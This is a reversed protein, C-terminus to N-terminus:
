EQRLADELTSQLQMISPNRALIKGEPGIVFSFPFSLRKYGPTESIQTVDYDKLQIDAADSRAFCSVCQLDNDNVFRRAAEVDDGLAIAIMVMRQGKSFASFAEYTELLEETGSPYKTSWLNLLVLQGRYDALNIKEGDFTEAQFQPARDGVRLRKKIDIQLVGVDLPAHANAENVDPVHLQHDLYAILEGMRGPKDSPREYVIVRLNYTGPLGDEVRFTGDHEIHVGYTRRNEWLSTKFEKGEASQEWNKRWSRRQDETMENFDEPTSAEPQKLSLTHRGYASNISQKYDPPVALRGVVPRGNGGISINATKGARVNVVESNGQGSSTQGFKIVHAIRVKGAPLKELVFYGNADTVTWGEHWASPLNPEPLYLQYFRIQENAAFGTGIRLVGEVRGWPLVIINPEAAFDE